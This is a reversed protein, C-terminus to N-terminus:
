FSKLQIEFGINPKICPRAQKVVGYAVNYDVNNELMLYGIVIASSRSVGANCHILINESKSVATKIFPKCQLVVEKINTEPLDLCTVFEYNINSCKYCPEIGVSLVNLINYKLLISQECCDQSGLYINNSIFAPINDPKNDIVFGFSSSIKQVGNKSQIFRRGDVCTIVTETNKLSKKRNNLAELLSM